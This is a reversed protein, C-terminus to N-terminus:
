TKRYIIQANQKLCTHAAEKIKPIKIGKLTIHFETYKASKKEEEKKEM